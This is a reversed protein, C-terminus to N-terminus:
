SLPYVDEKIEKDEIDVDSINEFQSKIQRAELKNTALGHSFDFHWGDDLKKKNLFYTKLLTILIYLYFIIVGYKSYIKVAKISKRDM